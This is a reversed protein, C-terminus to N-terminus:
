GVVLFQLRCVGGAGQMEVNDSECFAQVNISDGAHGNVMLPGCTLYMPMLKAVYIKNIVYTSGGGAFNVAMGFQWWGNNDGTTFTINGDGVVLYYCTKLVNVQTGALSFYSTDQFSNIVDKAFGSFTGASYGPYDYSMAFIGNVVLAGKLGGTAGTALANKVATKPTIPNRLPSGSSAKGVKQVDIATRITFDTM